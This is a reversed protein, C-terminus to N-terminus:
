IIRYLYLRRWNQLNLRSFVRRGGLRIWRRAGNAVTGVGPLLVLILSIVSVAIIPYTLKQLHRYDVYSMAILVVLSLVIWLFHKAFQYGNSDAAFMTTDTSYVTVIIFITACRCYIRSLAM